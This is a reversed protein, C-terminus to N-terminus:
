SNKVFFGIYWNKFLNVWRERLELSSQPVRKGCAKTEELPQPMRLLARFPGGPLRLVEEPEAGEPNGRRYLQDTEGGSMLWM